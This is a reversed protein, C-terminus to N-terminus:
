AGLMLLMVAVVSCFRMHMPVSQGFSAPVRCHGVHKFSSILSLKKQECSQKLFFQTRSSWPEESTGRAVGVLVSSVRERLGGM